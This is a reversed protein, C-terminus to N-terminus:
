SRFRSDPAYALPLLAFAVQGALGVLGAPAAVAALWQAPSQGLVLALAAECAILLAFGMAGMAAAQLPGAIAHRRVLWRALLASAALMVPLELLVARIEGLRPAAVLVRLTGLVFGLLFALAGYAGGAVLVSRM